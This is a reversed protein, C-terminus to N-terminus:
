ELHAHHLTRPPGDRSRGARMFCERANVVGEHMGSLCSALRGKEAFSLERDKMLDRMLGLVVGEVVELCLGVADSNERGELARRMRGSVLRPLNM